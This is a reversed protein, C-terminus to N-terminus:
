EDEVFVRYSVAPWPSPIAGSHLSTGDLRGRNTEIYSRDSSFSLRSVVTVAKLTERPAGAAADWLRVTNDSSASVLLKGDLSFAVDRVYDM